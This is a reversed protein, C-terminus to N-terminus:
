NWRGGMSLMLLFQLLVLSLSLSLRTATCLANDTHMHVSHDNHPLFALSRILSATPLCRDTKAEDHDSTTAHRESSPETCGRRRLHQPCSVLVHLQARANLVNM